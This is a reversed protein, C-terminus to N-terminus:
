HVGLVNSGAKNSIDTWASADGTHIYVDTGTNFDASNRGTSLKNYVENSFYTENNQRFTERNWNSVSANNNSFAGNGHVVVDTGGDGCGCSSLQAVNSGAVNSIETNATADGTYIHVSGGTNFSASNGGTSLHNNVDNHIDTDNNQSVRTSNHNSVDVNNDSFAGNGAEVVKTDAFAAPAASLALLATTAVGVGIKKLTNHM